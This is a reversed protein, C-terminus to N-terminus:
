GSNIPITLISPPFLVRSSRGIRKLVGPFNYIRRRDAIPDYDKFDM